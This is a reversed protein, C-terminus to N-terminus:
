ASEKSSGGAWQDLLAPQRGVGRSREIMWAVIVSLAYLAVLPIGLILQAIVVDGPTILASVVVAGV